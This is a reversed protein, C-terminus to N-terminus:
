FPNKRIKLSYLLLNFLLHFGTGLIITWILIKMEVNYILGYVLACGFASDAQDVIIFFGKWRDSTEGEKIGLRRKMFSNPLEALCYFLGLLLGLIWLAEFTFLRLGLLLHQELLFSLYVGPLTALPMIIFGRWTKNVGFWRQHIPKKFYSLINVKVAIMHLVGAVILPISLVIVKLFDNLSLYENM